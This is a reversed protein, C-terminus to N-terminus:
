FYSFNCLKQIALKRQGFILVLEKTGKRSNQIKFYKQEPPPICYFVKSHLLSSFPMDWGIRWSSGEIYGCPWWRSKAIWILDQKLFIICKLSRTTPQLWGYLIRRDKVRSGGVYMLEVLFLTFSATTSHVVQHTRYPSISRKRLFFVTIQSDFRKKTRGYSRESGLNAIIIRGRGPGRGYYHGQM